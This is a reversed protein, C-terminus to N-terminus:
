DEMAPIIVTGDSLVYLTRALEGEGQLTVHYAQRGEYREYTISQISMGEFLKGIAEKVIPADNEKVVEGEVFGEIENKQDNPGASEAPNPSGAANPSGTPELSETGNPSTGPNVSNEPIVSNNPSASPKASNTPSPTTKNNPDPTNTTGVNGNCSCASVATLMCLTLLIAAATRLKKRM